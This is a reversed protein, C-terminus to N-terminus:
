LARAVAVFADVAAAFWEVAEPVELVPEGLPALYCWGQHAEAPEVDCYVCRPEIPEPVSPLDIM